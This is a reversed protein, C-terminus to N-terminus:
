ARVLRTRARACAPPRARLRLGGPHALRRDGGDLLRLRRQAPASLSARETGGAPARARAAAAAAPPVPVVAGPDRADAAAACRRRDARAADHAGLPPLGRRDRRAALRARADARRRRRRLARPEPADRPRQPGAESAAPVGARVPPARHRRRRDAGAVAGVRNRPERASGSTDALAYALRLGGVVADP